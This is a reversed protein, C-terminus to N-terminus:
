ARSALGLTIKVALENPMHHRSGGCLGVSKGIGNSNDAGSFIAVFRCHMQCPKDSRHDIRVDNHHDQFGM